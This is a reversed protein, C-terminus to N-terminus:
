TQSFKQASSSQFRYTCPQGNAFRRPSSPRAGQKYMMMTTELRRRTRRMQWGSTLGALLNSSSPRIPWRNCTGRAPICLPRAATPSHSRVSPIRTARCAPACPAKRVRRELARLAIRVFDQQRNNDVWKKVAPYFTDYLYEKREETTVSFERIEDWLEPMQVRSLTRANPPTALSSAGLVLAPAHSPVRLPSLPHPAGHARVEDALANGKEAELAIAEEVTLSFMRIASKQDVVWQMLERAVQLQMRHLGIALADEELRQEELHSDAKGPPLKARMGRKAGHSSLLSSVIPHDPSENSIADDLPTNGHNDTINIDIRPVSLLYTVSSIRVCSAAVHLASRGLSDQENPSCRFRILRQLMAVDDSCAADCLNHAVDFNGLTAGQALLMEACADNESLLADQLPTIGWRDRINVHGGHELLMACNEAKGQAAAVHLSARGDADCHNVDAGFRCLFKLESYGETKAAASCLKDVLDKSGLRAGAMWLLEAMGEQQHRLADNLPTGGREDEVNVDGSLSILLKVIEKHGGCAALHMARRGDHDGLNVDISTSSLVGRVASLDGAAAATCLRSLHLQRRRERAEEIM